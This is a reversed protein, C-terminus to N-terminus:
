AAIEEAFALVAAAAAALEADSTALRLDAEVSWSRGGTSTGIVVQHIHWDGTVEVVRDSVITSRRSGERRAILDMAAQWVFGTTIDMEELDLSRTRRLVAATSLNYGAISIQRPATATATTNM